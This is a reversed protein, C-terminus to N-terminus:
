AYGKHATKRKPSYPVPLLPLKGSALYKDLQKKLEDDQEPTLRCIRHTSIKANPILEIQHDTDRQKPLTNPYDDFITKYKDLLKQVEQPIPDEKNQKAELEPLLKKSTKTSQPLLAEVAAQDEPTIDTYHPVSIPTLEQKNPKNQLITNPTQKNTQPQKNRPRLHHHALKTLRHRTQPKYQLYTKYHKYYFTQLNQTLHTLTKNHTM